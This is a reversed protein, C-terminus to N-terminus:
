HIMYSAQLFRKGPPIGEYLVDGLLTPPSQTYHTPAPNDILLILRDDILSVACTLTLLTMAATDGLTYVDRPVLASGERAPVFSGNHVPVSNSTPINITPLSVFQQM